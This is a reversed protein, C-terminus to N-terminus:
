CAVRHDDQHGIFRIVRTVRHAVPLQQIFAPVAHKAAAKNWAPIHRYECVALYQDVLLWDPQPYPSIVVFVRDMNAAVVRNKGAYGPRVLVSSRALVEEVRGQMGDESPSWSIRDGVAVDGLRRRTQCLMINGDPTEVALGQGLHSIVLGDLLHTPPAIGHTPKQPSNRRGKGKM